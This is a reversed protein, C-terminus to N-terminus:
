TGRQPSGAVADVAALAHQLVIRLGPEDFLDRGRVDIEAHVAPGDKKGNEIDAVVAEARAHLTHDLVNRDGVGSPDTVSESSQGGLLDTVAEAGSAERGGIDLPVLLDDRLADRCQFLQAIGRGWRDSSGQEILYM